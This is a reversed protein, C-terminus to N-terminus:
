GRTASFWRSEGLWGGFRLGNRELAAEIARQDLYRTTFTHAWTREGLRLELTGSVVEGEREVNLWSVRMGDSDEFLFGSTARDLLAHSHV